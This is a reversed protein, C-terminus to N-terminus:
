LVNYTSYSLAKHTYIVSNKLEARTGTVNHLISQEVEIYLLM